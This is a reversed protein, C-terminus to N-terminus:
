SRALAGDVLLRVAGHLQSRVAEEVAPVGGVSNKRPRSAEQAARGYTHFLPYREAFDPAVDGMAASREAWWGEDADVETAWSRMAVISGASERALGLAGAAVTVVLEDRVGSSAVVALLVEFASQQAPGEVPDGGSPRLLWPHTLHLDVVGDIYAVLRTPWSRGKPTALEEYARDRVLALLEAKNIVYTYVAMASVGLRKGVKRMSVDADAQEDAIELAADVVRHLSLRSPEDPGRPVDHEGWLLRLTRHPDNRPTPV